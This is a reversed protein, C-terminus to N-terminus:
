VIILAFYFAGVLAFCVCFYVIPHLIIFFNDFLCIFFIVFKDVM